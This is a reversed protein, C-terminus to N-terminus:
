FTEVIQDLMRNEVHGQKIWEAKIAGLCKGLPYGPYIHSLVSVCFAAGYTERLRVRKCVAYCKSAPLSTIRHLQNAIPELEKRIEIDKYTKM